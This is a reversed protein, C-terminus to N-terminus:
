KSEVATPLPCTGLATQLDAGGAAISAMLSIACAKQNYQLSNHGGGQTVIKVAPGHHHEYHYTGQWAPTAVDDSGIFYYVKAAFPDAASDFPTTLHLDGCKTGDEAKNRALKGASFVVDLDSEPVTDAVERCAVNRYLAIAGPETHPHGEAMDRFISLATAQTEAPQTTSLAGLTGATEVTGRPMFNMLARSWGEPTIGYPAAATDLEHLVDGPLFPRLRDFQHIYEAGVFESSFGRGLVGELVVARPAPLSQEELEHAVTTALLTGYSIGFVIYSDLKRARIAAVVDRAIEPTNWFGASDAADPVSALTNCGVGRPDTLLYGWGEPVFAPLRNTSASGPGGPLYVLVPAGPATPAKFRYGYSFTESGHSTVVPREVRFIEPGVCQEPLASALSFEASSYGSRVEESSDSSPTACAALLVLSGLTLLKM